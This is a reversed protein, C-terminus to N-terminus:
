RYQREFSLLKGSLFFSLRHIDVIWLVANQDSSTQRFFVM